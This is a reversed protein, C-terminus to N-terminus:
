RLSDERAALCTSRRAVRAWFRCRHIEVPDRQAGPLVDYSQAPLEEFRDARAEL